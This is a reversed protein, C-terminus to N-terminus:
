PFKAPDQEELVVLSMIQYLDLQVTKILEILDPDDVLARAMGLAASAEDIAGVAQIRPHSKPVRNKGLLGTSGEDGKGSYYKKMASNYRILRGPRSGPSAPIIFHPCTKKYYIVNNNLRNTRWKLM